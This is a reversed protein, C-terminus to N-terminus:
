NPPQLPACTSVGAGVISMGTSPVVTSFSKDTAYKYRTVKSSGTSKDTYFWFDGGWFSFAFQNINSPVSSLSTPTGAKGTAKDLEALKPPTELAFDAFLRADGNGTLECEAGNLLGGYNGVKQLKLGPLTIKYLGAGPHFPDIALEDDACTYLTESTGGSTDSSFGMGKIILNQQDVAYSTATCHANTTDVKFLSGDAMNVYATADRSVAMSNPHSATQCDLAGIKAFKLAGPDFSWLDGIDSVVYVLKAADTCGGTPGSGGGSDGFGTGGSDPTTNIDPSGSDPDTGFGSRNASSCGVAAVILLSLSARM